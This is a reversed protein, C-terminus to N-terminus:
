IFHRTYLASLLSAPLSCTDRSSRSVEMEGHGQLCPPLLGPANARSEEGGRATPALGSSINNGYRRHLGKKEEEECGAEAQGEQSGLARPGKPDEWPLCQDQPLVCAKSMLLSM